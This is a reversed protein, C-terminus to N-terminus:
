SSFKTFFFFGLTRFKIGIIGIQINEQCLPSGVTNAVTLSPAWLLTRIFLYFFSIPLNFETIDWNGQARINVSLQSFPDKKLCSISTNLSSHETKCAGLYICVLTCNCFFPAPNHPWICFENFALQLLGYHLWFYIPSSSTYKIM